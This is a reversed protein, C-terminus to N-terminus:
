DRKRKFSAESQNGENVSRAKHVPAEMIRKRDLIGNDRNGLMSVQDVYEEIRYALYLLECM